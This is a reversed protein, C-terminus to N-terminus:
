NVEKRQGLTKSAKNRIRNVKASSELLKVVLLGIGIRSQGKIRSVFSEGPDSSLLAKLQSGLEDLLAESSFHEEYLDRARQAMLPWSVRYSSLIQPIRSIDREKIRISCSDWDIGEPLTIWDSILVPVRRGQMTEYLRSGAGALVCGKPCLNFKCLRLNNAYEAKANFGSRDFMRDWIPERIDILAEKRNHAARLIPNMRARLGSSTSGCYGFLYQAESLEFPKIMENCVYPLCFARHRRKDYMYSPLSVYFGSLIGSPLDGMEWVFEPPFKKKPWELCLPIRGKLSPCGGIRLICDADDSAEVLVANSSNQNRMADVMDEFQRQHWYDHDSFDIFIRLPTLQGTMTTGTAHNNSKPSTNKTKVHDLNKQNQNNILTKAQCSVM